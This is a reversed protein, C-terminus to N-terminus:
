TTNKTKSFGRSGEFSLGGSYGRNNQSPKRNGLFCLLGALILEFPAKKRLRRSWRCIWVLM